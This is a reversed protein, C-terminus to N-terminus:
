PVDKGGMAKIPLVHNRRGSITRPTLKSYPAFSFVWLSVSSAIRWLRTRLICLGLLRGPSGQVNLSRSIWGRRQARVGPLASSSMWGNRQTVESARARSEMLTDSIVNALPRPRSWVQCEMTLDKSKGARAGLSQVARMLAPHGTRLVQDWGEHKGALSAVLRVNVKSWDWNM